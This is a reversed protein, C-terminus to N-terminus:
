GCWPACAGKSLCTCTLIGWLFKDKKFGPIRSILYVTFFLVPFLYRGQPQYDTSYSYYLGSHM